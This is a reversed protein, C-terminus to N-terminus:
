VRARIKKKKILFFFADAQWGSVKKVLADKESNFKTQSENMHKILQNM